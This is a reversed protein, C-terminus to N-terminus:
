VDAWMEPYEDMIPIQKWVPLPMFRKGALIEQVSVIEISKYIQQTKPHAFSGAARAEVLAGSSPNDLTIIVALTAAELAMDERLRVVDQKRVSDPRAQFLVKVAETASTPYLIVGSDDSIAAQNNTYTLVAWKEFEGSVRDDRKRALAVASPLDFPQGILKPTVGEQKVLRRESLSIAQYALDIGIGERGLQHAVALTTGCGCYADLVTDGENSLARILRRLVAEPKQTPYGLWEESNNPPRSIDWVDGAVKGNENFHKNARTINASYPVRVEDANFTYEAGKSYLLLVDHKRGFHRKSGGGSRYSWIVENIFEGGQPVFISDLVLKLYHSATPDCHLCFSGTPKLVRRIETVRLALSVLYALLAGEGLVEHLGKFLAVTQAMFQRCLLIEAYGAQALADWTWTDVFAQAQTCDESSEQPYSQNYNRASNFPPDIYCLDVLDDGVHMRLVDLNDGYFLTPM